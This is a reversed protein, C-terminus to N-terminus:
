EARIANRRIVPELQARTTEILASLRQPGGGGLESGQAAFRVGIEPDALMSDVQGSLLGIAREPTGAPAMLCFWAGFVLPKLGAEAFTPVDALQPLRTATMTAIPRVEGGRIQGLINPVNDIIMDLRGAIVDLVALQAGRYPVHTVQVGESENFLALALHLSSGNGASGATLRGPEARAAAVVDAGTRWPRANPVCLVKPTNVLLAIPAFATRPNFPLAPFLFENVVMPGISGFLLTHGDPASKAVLDAGVNGGAGVRNEVVVPQGYASQVRQAFPRALSDVLGGAPFPVVMRIPRSPWESQARAPPALALAPLALAARRTIQTM